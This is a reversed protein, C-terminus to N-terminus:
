QGATVPDEEFDEDHVADEIEDHSFGEKRLFKEEERDDEEQRQAESKHVHNGKRQRALEKGLKKPMDAYWDKIVQLIVCSRPFM